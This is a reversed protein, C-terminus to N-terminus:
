SIGLTATSLWVECNLWLRLSLSEQRGSGFRYRQMVESPVPSYHKTLVEVIQELTKKSSKAPALLSVPVYLPEDFLHTNSAV